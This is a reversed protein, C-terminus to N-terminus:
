IMNLVIDLLESVTSIVKANAQYAHQYEVINVMEEDLSVGAVSTRNDEYTEKATEYTELSSSVSAAESDLGGIISTYKDGLTSGSSSSSELETKADESSFSLGTNTFFDARTSCTTTNVNSYDIELNAISAIAAARTGDGDGSSDSEACNLLSSDEQLSSSIAINKANIGDDSETGDVVFILTDSALNTNDVDVDTSGTQIANVTYALTVAFQDLEDMLTQIEEQVDQSGGVTGSDATFLLNTVETESTANVTGDSGAVLIRNKELSDKLDEATTSDLDTLTITETDNSDGLKDYTITLTVKGTTDDTTSEVNSVYSFRASSSGTTDSADNLTLSNVTGDETTYSTSVSVGSDDEEDTTIGFKESLTDLLNDRTDMLDNATMGQVTLNEIEKNLVDIQDLIDNIDTVDAKLDTEQIDTLTDELTTYRDNITTALTSAYTIAIEYNASDSTETTNSGIESFVGYFDSLAAGVGSDDTEDLVDAISQLSTNKTDYYEYTSTADRVQYDLFTDRIREISSIQSGTGVQGVTTAYKSNGGSPTTTTSVARQRTYGETDTNAINHSTTDIQTQVVSLGRKAINFTGFLGSM